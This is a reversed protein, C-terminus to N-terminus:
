WNKLKPNFSTIKDLCGPCKITLNSRYYSGKLPKSSLTPLIDEYHASKISNKISHLTRKFRIAYIDFNKSIYRHARKEMNGEINVGMLLCDWYWLIWLLTERKKLFKKKSTTVTWLYMPQIQFCCPELNEPMSINLRSVLQKNTIM